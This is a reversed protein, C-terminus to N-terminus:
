LRGNCDKCVNQWKRGAGDPKLFTHTHKKNIERVVGEQIPTQVVLHEALTGMCKSSNYGFNARICSEPVMKFIKQTSHSLFVDIKKAKNYDIVSKSKLAADGNRNTKGTPIANTNHTPDSSIMLVPHKDMWRIIKVNEKEKGITEGRKIKYVFGEPIGRRNAKLTGCYLIKMSYLTKTLEISSYFNDAYVIHGKKSDLTDLLNLVIAHSHAMVILIWLFAYMEQQNTDYWLKIRSKSPYESNLQQKGYSNTERDIVYIIDTDIFQKFVGIQTQTTSTFNDNLKCSEPYM